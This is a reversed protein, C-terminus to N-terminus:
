PLVRLPFAANQFVDMHPWIAYSQFVMGLGRENAPVRVRKESSYLTRGALTIEGADPSELGAICRLTTTKGCGSPGLLTFFTGPELTFSADRIGGAIQDTSNDFIKTLGEVRLM